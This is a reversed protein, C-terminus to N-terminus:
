QKTGYVTFLNSFTLTDERRLYNLFSHIARDIDINKKDTLKRIKPLATAIKEKWYQDNESNIKGYILHYKTMQTQINLFGNKYFMHYLKRGVIPDFGTHQKLENFIIEIQSMLQLDEPYQFVFQGDIDQILVTGATKCIRKIEKLAELPHKLYEFMMRSFILDFTDDPFPLNYVNGAVLSLNKASLAQCVVSLRHASIDLGTVTTDPYANAIEQAINAPGCGVDLITACPTIIKQLYDRIFEKPNVKNALRNNEFPSEMLYECTMITNNM